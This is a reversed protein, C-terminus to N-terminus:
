ERISVRYEELLRSREGGAHHLLGDTRYYMVSQWLAAGTALAVAVLASVPSRNWLGFAASGAVVGLVFLGGFLYMASLIALRLHTVLIPVNSDRTM